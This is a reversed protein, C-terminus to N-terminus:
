PDDSECCSLLWALKESQQEFQICLIMCTGTRQIYYFPQSLHDNCKKNDNIAIKQYRRNALLAVAVKSRSQRGLFTCIYRGFFHIKKHLLSEAM